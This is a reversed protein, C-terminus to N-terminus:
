GDGSVLRRMLEHEEYGAKREEEMWSVEQSLRENLLRYM